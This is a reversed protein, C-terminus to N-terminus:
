SNGWESWPAATCMPGCATLEGTWGNRRLARAVQAAVECPSTTVDVWGFRLTTRGDLAAANDRRRDRFGGEEDDHGRRGDLEVLTSFEDYDVDRFVKSLGARGPKQRRGEPLGHPKEVDDRYKRELNSTVGEAFDGCLNKILQRHRVRRRSAMATRLARPTTLKMRFASLVLGVVEGRRRTQDALDLITDEVCTVPPLGPIRRSRQPQPLRTRHVVMWDPAVVKRDHPAIIHVLGVPDPERMGYTESGTEHSLVALEGGHLVAVWLRTTRPLPGTFTVLVGPVPSQWRQAALQADMEHHTVGLRLLQQRSAAGGQTAALREVAPSRARSAAAGGPLAGPEPTASTM